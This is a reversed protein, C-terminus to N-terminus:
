LGCVLSLIGRAGQQGEACFRERLQKKQPPPVLALVCSLAKKVSFGRLRSPRVVVFRYCPLSASVSLPVRLEM